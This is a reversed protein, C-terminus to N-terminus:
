SFWPSALGSHPSSNQATCPKSAKNAYGVRPCAQPTPRESISSPTTSSSARPPNPKASAIQQREERALRLDM